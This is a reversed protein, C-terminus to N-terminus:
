KKFLSNFAKGINLLLLRFEHGIDDWTPKDQKTKEAAKEKKEDKKGPEGLKVLIVVYCIVLTLVAALYYIQKTPIILGTLFYNRDLFSLLIFFFKLLYITLLAASVPAILSLPLYANWFIENVLAILSILLLLMINANLFEVLSTFNYNNVEPAVINVVALLILFFVFVAIRKVVIGVPSKMAQPYIRVIYPNGCSILLSAKEGSDHYGRLTAAL